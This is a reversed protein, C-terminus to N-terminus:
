RALFQSRNGNVWGLHESVTHTPYGFWSPPVGPSARKGQLGLNRALLQTSAQKGRLHQNM